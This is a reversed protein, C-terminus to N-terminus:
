FHMNYGRRVNYGRILIIDVEFSYVNYVRSYIHVNYGRGPFCVIHEECSCVNGRKLYLCYIWIMSFFM